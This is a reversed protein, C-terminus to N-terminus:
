TPVGGARAEDGRQTIGPTGGQARAELGLPRDRSRTPPPAWAPAPRREHVPAPQSLKRYLIAEGAHVATFPRFLASSLETPSVILWGGEVLCDWFRAVIREIHGSELYMLVNRCLILDMANTNTTLSPYADEALNLQSFTVMNRHRARLTYHGDATSEFHPQWVGAASRPLVM